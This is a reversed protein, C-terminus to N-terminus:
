FNQINIYRLKTPIFNQVFTPTPTKNKSSELDLIFNESKNKLEPQIQNAM